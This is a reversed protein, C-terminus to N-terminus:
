FPWAKFWTAWGIYSMVIITYIFLTSLMKGIAGGVCVDDAAFQAIEDLDFPKDPVATASPTEPSGQGAATSQVQNAAGAEEPQKGGTEANTM